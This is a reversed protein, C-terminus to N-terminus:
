YIGVRLNVGGLQYHCVCARVIVALLVPVHAWCQHQRRRTFVPTHKYTIFVFVCACVGFLSGSAHLGFMHCCVTRNDASRIIRGLRTQILTDPWFFIINNNSVTRAHTRAISELDHAHGDGLAGKFGIYENPRHIHQGWTNPSQWSVLLM